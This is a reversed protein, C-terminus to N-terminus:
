KSLRGLAAKASEFYKLSWRRKGKEMDMLYTQSIRMEIALAKQSIGLAKRTGTIQDATAETNLLLDGMAPIPKLKSVLDNPVGANECM